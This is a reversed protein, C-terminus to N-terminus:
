FEHRGNDGILQLETTGQIQIGTTVDSSFTVGALSLARWCRMKLDNSIAVLGRQSADIDVWFFVEYEIFQDGFQKLTVFPAPDDLVDAVGQVADELRRLIQEPDDQYAVGLSFNSRRLGDQTYNHLPERFIQASPVYIDCGDYTRIHVHRLEIGTVVGTLDGTKVLDNLEFPRSLSLFFGALFNEGIERFAFGAVIAVVGGTALLSAAIGQLGLLSLALLLGVSSVVWTVLQQMFRQNGRLGDSLAFLRGSLRGVHRGVFLFVAIVVLAYMLKPLLRLFTQWDNTLTELVFDM